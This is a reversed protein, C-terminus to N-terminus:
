QAIEVDAISTVYQVSYVLTASATAVEGKTGVSIETSKIVCSKALGGVDFHSGMENEVLVCAADLTDSISVNAGKVHIEVVLDLNGRATMMGITVLSSQQTNTYIALAPLKQDDIAYDRMKYIRGGFMGIGALQTAIYDRIQQHIHSM